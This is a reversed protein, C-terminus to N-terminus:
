YSYTSLNCAPVHYSNHPQNVDYVWILERSNSSPYETFGFMPVLKVNLEGWHYETQFDFTMTSQKSEILICPILTEHPNLPCYDYHGSGKTEEECTRGL